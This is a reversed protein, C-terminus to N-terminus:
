NGKLIREARRRIEEKLKAPQLIRIEGGYSLIERILEESINVLMSFVVKDTSRKEIKQSSHLPQSELYRGAVLTTEMVIADPVTNGSTIGVAYKFFNDPNFDKPRIVIDDTIKLNIIRDLGYTIYDSKDLDFSILYWRNRYDKLLLPLVKRAKSVATVYSAYEFHVVQENKIADLLISLHENGGSSKAGEFQIYQDASNERSMSVRDMIKDIASGYQKFIDAEKFQFLTKTAFEIAHLDDESLPIQDISFDPDEYYYGNERKSFKIPADHDMRMSFIDKEITSDCIHEGHISGFLAEECAERLDQKSPYPAYKNRLCKDIIRFRIQANKIQPM